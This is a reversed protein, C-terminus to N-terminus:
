KLLQCIHGFSQADCVAQSCHTSRLRRATRLVPGFTKNM